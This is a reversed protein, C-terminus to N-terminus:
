TVVFIEKSYIMEMSIFADDKDDSVDDNKKFTPERLSLM